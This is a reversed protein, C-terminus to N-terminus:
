AITDSVPIDLLGIEKVEVRVALDHQGPELTEDSVHLTVVVGVPFQLPRGSSIHGVPRSGGSPAVITVQSDDVKEGDLELGEIGTITAPAILNKLDFVFGGEKVRLSGKVYLKKLVTAPIVPM